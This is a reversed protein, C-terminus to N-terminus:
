ISVERELQENFLNYYDSKMRILEDHTGQELINGDSLLYLKNCLKLSSLRHSVIITTKGKIMDKLNEMINNETISDLSSTPEDLIIIPVDRLFARALAIRQREGGSIGKGNEGLVTQYGQTLHSVFEDVGVQKAVKFIDNDSANLNGYRINELITVPFLHTDQSVYGVYSRLNKLNWTDLDQSFVRIHGKQARCFGCLLEIITSKGAGSSGVIGICEGQNLNLNIETLIIAGDDYEFSVKDFQIVCSQTESFSQGDTREEDLTLIKDVRSMAGMAIKLERLMSFLNVTPQNVTGILQSFAFLEPITVEGQTVMFGGYILAIINPLYNVALILGVTIADNVSYRVEEKFLKQLILQGKKFMLRQLSYTKIFEAGKVTTNVHDMIEGNLTLRKKYIASSRNSMTNLLVSLIPTSIFVILSLKWNITFLYIFAAIAMVPNFVLDSYCTSIFQLVAPIDNNHRSILDGSKQQLVHKMDAKIIANTFDNKLDRHVRTNIYNSSYGAFYNRVLRVITLSIFLTVISIIANWDRSLAANIMQKIYDVQILNIAVSLLMLFVSLLLWAKYRKLYKFAWRYMYVISINQIFKKM